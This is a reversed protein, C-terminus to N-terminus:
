LKPDSVTIFVNHAGDRVLNSQDVRVRITLDPWESKIQQIAKMIQEECTRKDNRLKDYDM